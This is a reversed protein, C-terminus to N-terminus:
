LLHKGTKSRQFSGTNPNTRSYSTKKLINGIHRSSIKHVMGRGIAVKALMQHTWNTMEVGYDQPKESALAVIQQEEELTITKRTGSRPLDRLHNLLVELYAHSSLQQADMQKEYACLQEYSSEWRRRWAQVTHRSLALDRAIQSTSQGQRAKLLLTIRTHFQKQITRKRGEQELIATQLQTMPIAKAPAQGRRM